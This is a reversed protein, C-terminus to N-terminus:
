KGALYKEWWIFPVRFASPTNDPGHDRLGNKGAYYDGVQNVAEITSDTDGIAIAHIHPCWSSTRVRYWAAFGVTRLAKVSSWAQNRELDTLNCAGNGSWDVSIDVSGGGGHTCASNTTCDNPVYSGKTVDLTWRVKSDAEVLMNKTRQNVTEGSHTVHSGLVIKNTVTFRNNGLKTLSGLGPVGNAGNGTHGLRRQWAAYAARTGDGYFGDVAASFGKARLARQVEKVGADGPLATNRDLWPEVQAQVVVRDMPVTPLATANPALAAATAAALTLPVLARLLKSRTSRM